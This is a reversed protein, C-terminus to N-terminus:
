WPSLKRGEQLAIIMSELRELKEDISLVLSKHLAQSEVQDLRDLVDVALMELVEVRDRLGMDRM